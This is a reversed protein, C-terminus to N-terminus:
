NPVLLHDFAVKQRFCTKIRQYLNHAKDPPINQYPVICQSPSSPLLSQGAPCQTPLITTAPVCLFTLNAILDQAFHCVLAPLLVGLWAEIFALDFSLLPM